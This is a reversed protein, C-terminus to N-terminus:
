LIRYARHRPIFSTDETINTKEFRWLKHVWFSHDRGDAGVVQEFNTQMWGVHGDGALDLIDNDDWDYTELTHLVYGGADDSLLFDVQVLDAWLGCGRYSLTAIIDPTDDSNLCVAYVGTLVPSGETAVPFAADKGAKGIVLHLDAGTAGPRRRLSVQARDRQTMSVTFLDTTENASSKKLGAVLLVSRVREAPLFPGYGPVANVVLPTSLFVGFLIRIFNMPHTM